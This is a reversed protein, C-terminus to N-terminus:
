VPPVSYIYRTYQPVVITTGGKSLSVEPFYEKRIAGLYAETRDTPLEVMIPAGVQIGMQRACQQYTSVFSNANQANCKYYLFLWKRAEINM